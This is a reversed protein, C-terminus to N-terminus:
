ARRGVAQDGVQRWLQAPNPISVNGTRQFEVMGRQARRAPQKSGAPFEEYFTKDAILKVSEGGLEFLEEPGHFPCAGISGAM